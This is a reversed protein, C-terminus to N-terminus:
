SGLRFYLYAVALVYFANFGLGLLIVRVLAARSRRMSAARRAILFPVVLISALLFKEM